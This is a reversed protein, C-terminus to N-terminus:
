DMGPFKLDTCSRRAAVDTVYGRFLQMLHPAARASWSDYGYHLRLVHVAPSGDCVSSAWWLGTDEHRGATGPEIPSDTAKHSGTDGVFVDPTDQDYFTQVDAWWAEDRDGTPADGEDVGETGAYAADFLTRARDTSLRLACRERWAHADAPAGMAEDPLWLQEDPFWETRAYWACTGDARGAATFEPVPPLDASPEPLRDSCGLRDALRNAATVAVSAMRDRDGSTAPKPYYPPTGTYAASATVEIREVARGRYTGDSCNLRVTAESPGALGSAGDGIPVDARAFREALESGPESVIVDRGSGPGADVRAQFLLAGYADGDEGANQILCDSPLADLDLSARNRLVTSAHDMGRVEGVPVLDACGAGVARYTRWEDWLVPGSWGAGAVAVLCLLVNVCKRVRVRVRVREGTGWWWPSGFNVAAM